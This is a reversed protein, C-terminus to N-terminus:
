LPAGGPKSAGVFTEKAADWRQIVTWNAGLGRRPFTRFDYEGAAGVYRLGDFYSRLQAAEVNPGLRRFANAVIFATDWPQNTGIDPQIGKKNFEALFGIVTRKVPGNPLADPSMAPISAFYLDKPLFAAYAKMQSYIENGAGTMVPVDYGLDGLSHLITSFATGTTGAFVAQAGAAKIRAIQAAVTVDGLTFHETVLTMDANERLALGSGIAREVDQGSADNSAILGIKRWGRGHMYRVGGVIEDTASVGSSYSWGGDPPHYSNSFCWHVPGDKFLPAMASCIGILTSGLVIPVHKALMGNALQVATQPSSQDDQIAFHIPRGSGIGGSANIMEEAVGLSVQESKGLFAAPGTLPIIVNVEYPDAASIGRPLLALVAALFIFRAPARPRLNFATTRGGLIWHGRSKM